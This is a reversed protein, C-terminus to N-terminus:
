SDCGLAGKTFVEERRRDIIEGVDILLDRQLEETSRIQLGCSAAKRVSPDRWNKGESSRLFREQEVQLELRHIAIIREIQKRDQQPLNLAFKAEALFREPRWFGIVQHLAKGEKTCFYSRINGGGAGEPLNRTQEIPYKPPTSNPDATGYLEPFLNSWAMVFHENLFDVVTPDALTEARM